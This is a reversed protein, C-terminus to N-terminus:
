RADTPAYPDSIGMAGLIDTELREMVNADHDSEHDYGVLHLLGHVILHTVHDKFTKHELESERKITEHSLVIDGLMPGPPQGKEIDFAPFSLVNTPKDASRWLANLKSIHEDNTLVISLESEVQPLNLANFVQKAASEAWGAVKDPDSWEGYNVAVDIQITTSQSSGDNTM